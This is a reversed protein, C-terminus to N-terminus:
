KPKQQLFTIAADLVEDRGERVGRITPAVKIDPQIGLRQLQRGDAHRVDHGSFNVQINGPLVMTTVDGNAGATPTGVFTVKAATEFFLCTHEAQSIADEDILMVVKGLYPAGNPPPLEQPFGFESGAVYDPNALGIGERLPRRFLAAVLNRRTTLRPAISWATGNPYGRMDFIVAPTKMIADMAKDVEPLTLRALDIYGFGSPLVTFVPLPRQMRVYRGFYEGISLNRVLEVSRVRGAAGKVTLAIKSDKAGTLFFIHASRVLSQPTSAPILKEARALRDAVREGDITLVIDGVKLGAATAADTTTRIVSQGEVSRVAIPPFYTGLSEDLKQTGSVFGHSDHINTVLERVTRQYDIADKNSEFVPIYRTLIDDWNGELLHKYPFFYNIVNWFRFLSLLRHENDPFDMGVYPDDLYSQFAATSGMAPSPAHVIPQKVATLAAALAADTTGGSNESVVQDAHFGISGDPNVLESTRIRAKVGGPLDMTYTGAGLEKGMSGAQIVIAVNAAQLGTLNDSFDPTFQNIIVALPKKTGGTPQSTQPAATTIGSYYGGSSGGSQPAYGSHVRFRTAGLTVPADIVAGVAAAFFNGTLYNVYETEGPETEQDGRMDWVVANAKASALYFERVTGYFAQPNSIGLHVLPLLQVVLVGDRNQMFKAAADQATNPMSAAAVADVPPTAKTASEIEAVTNPDHLYSLLHNIAALYDQDSKAANVKPIAAALAGDWDIKRYALYPHFYKVTGWLKGLAVLRAIRTADPAPAPTVQAVVVPGTLPMALLALLVCFSSLKKIPGTM